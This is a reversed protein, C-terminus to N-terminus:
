REGRTLTMWHTVLSGCEFNYQDRWKNNGDHRYIQIDDGSLGLVKAGVEPLRKEILIWENM